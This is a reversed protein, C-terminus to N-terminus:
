PQPHNNAPGPEGAALLNPAALPQSEVSADPLMRVLEGVIRMAEPNGAELQAALWAGAQESVQTHTLVSVSARLDLASRAEASVNVNVNPGSKIEGTVKGLLEMAKCAATIAGNADKTEAGKLATKLHRHASRAIRRVDALIPQPSEPIRAPADTATAAPLEGRPQTGPVHGAHVHRYLARRSAAGWERAITGPKEGAALRSNVEAIDDRQCTQCYASM